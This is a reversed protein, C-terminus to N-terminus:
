GSMESPGVAQTKLTSTRSKNGNSNGKLQCHKLSERKLLM